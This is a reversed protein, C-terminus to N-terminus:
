FTLDAPTPGIWMGANVLRRKAAVVFYRGPDAAKRADLAARRLEALAGGGHRIVSQHCQRYFRERLHPRDGSGFARILKETLDSERDDPGVDVKSRAARIREDLEAGTIVRLKKTGEM